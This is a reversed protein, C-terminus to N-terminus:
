QGLRECLMAVGEKQGVLDSGITNNMLALKMRGNGFKLVITTRDLLGRKIKVGTINAFPISLRNLIKRVNLSDVIVFNLYEETAGIYCYTNTLAGMVAAASGVVASLTGLLAYTKADAMITGWIKMQYNQGPQLMENLMMNKDQENM